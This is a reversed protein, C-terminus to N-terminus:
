GNRLKEREKRIEEVYEAVRERAEKNRDDVPKSESDRSLLGFSRKPKTMIEKTVPLNKYASSAINYM